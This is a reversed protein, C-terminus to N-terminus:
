ETRALIAIGSPFRYPMIELSDFGARLVLTWLNAGFESHVLLDPDACGDYGHYSAQLGARSRTLRGVIIPATFALTRWSDSRASM